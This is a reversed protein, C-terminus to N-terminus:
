VYDFSRSTLLLLATRSWGLVFFSIHRLFVSFSRSGSLFADPVVYGIPGCFIGIAAGAVVNEGVARGVAGAARGQHFLEDRIDLRVKRSRRHGRM